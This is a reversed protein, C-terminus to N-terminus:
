VRMVLTPGRLPSLAGMATMSSTSPCVTAWCVTPSASRARPVRNAPAVAPAPAAAAEPSTVASASSIASAGAVASSVTAVSAGAVSTSVAGAVSASLSPGDSSPPAVAVAVAAPATSVSVGLSASPLSPARHAVPFGPPLADGGAGGPDADASTVLARGELALGGAGTPVGRRGHSCGVGGVGRDVGLRLLDDGIEVVGIALTLVVGVDGRLRGCLVGGDDVVRRQGRVHGGRGGGLDLGGLQAVGGGGAELSGPALGSGVRLSRDSVVGRVVSSGAVSGPPPSTRRRSPGLLPWTRRRIPM